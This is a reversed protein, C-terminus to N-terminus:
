RARQSVAKTTVTLPSSDSAVAEVLVISVTLRPGSPGESREAARWLQVGRPGGNYTSVV